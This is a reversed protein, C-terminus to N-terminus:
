CHTFIFYCLLLFFINLNYTLFQFFLIWDYNEDNYQDLRICTKPSIIYIILTGEFAFLEEQLQRDHTEYNTKWRRTRM